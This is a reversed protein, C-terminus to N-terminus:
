VKVQVVTGNVDITYDGSEFTGDLTITDNYPNLEMTCMVDVPVVRYIKVTVQKDARTQQVQVPFKCGDPQYGSVQLTVTAPVSASVSTEIKEIVTLSQRGATGDTQAQATVVVGEMPASPMVAPEQRIGVFLLFGIIVAVLVAPFCGFMSSGTEQAM